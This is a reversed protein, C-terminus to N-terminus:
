TVADHFIIGMTYREGSAVVSVGHKVNIKYFGKSGLKPRFNTTIVLLDGKNPKLVIAKSQTRPVTETLVFEGGVYDENPESLFLVLQFPFYVKGYLDQHLTNFGGEGYKLLLVTSLTQSASECEAKLGELTDPFRTELQLAQMWENATPVLLPYMENRIEQILDPLPYQFYKYEGLGFRYREMIVMKRFLEEQNYFSKIQECISTSLFDAVLSYGSENLDQQIEESKVLDYKNKEVLM